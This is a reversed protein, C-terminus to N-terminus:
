RNKGEAGPALPIDAAKLLRNFVAQPERGIPTTKSQGESEMRATSCQFCIIYDSMKGGTITRVGHRPWFCKAQRANKDALGKELAVLLERREEPKKLEVKGLVPFGAFSEAAKKPEKGPAYDNGDISYLIVQDPGAPESGQCGFLFGITALVGLLYWNANM